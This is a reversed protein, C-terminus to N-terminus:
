GRDRESLVADEDRRELRSSGLNVGWRRATAIRAVREGIDPPSHIDTSTSEFGARNGKKTM